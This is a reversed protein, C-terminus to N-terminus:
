AIVTPVLAAASPSRLATYETEFVRDKPTGARSLSPSSLREIDSACDSRSGVELDMSDLLLVPDTVVTPGGGRYIVCLAVQISCMVVGFCNPVIVFMDNTTLGFSLWLSTSVLCMCCLPVPLARASKTKLVVKVKELPSGLMIIAFADGVGGMVQAASTISLGTAGAITCVVFVVVPSVMALAIVGMRRIRARDDSYYYFVSLFVVACAQGFLSTACIPFFTSTLFGYWMRIMM